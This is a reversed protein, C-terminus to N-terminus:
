RAHARVGGRPKRARKLNRERQLSALYAPNDPPFPGNALTNLGKNRIENVEAPNGGYWIASRAIPDDFPPKSTNLMLYATEAGKDSAVVNIDGAKAKEQLDIISLSNSTTMLDFEGSVLGNM